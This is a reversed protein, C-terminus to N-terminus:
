WCSTSTATRVGLQNVNMTACSEDATAQTGAADAQLTFTSATVTPLSFSYKGSLDAQCQQVTSTPLTAGSYTMNTTFYREMFQAQEMLCGQAVNRRSKAVSSQYGALAIRALVGVVVVVIMLEILTFGRQTRGSFFFIRPMM